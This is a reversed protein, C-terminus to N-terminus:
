MSRRQPSTEISSAPIQPPTLSALSHALGEGLMGQKMASGHNTRYMGTSICSQHGSPTLQHFHLPTKVYPTEPSVPFAPTAPASENGNKTPTFISGDAEDLNKHYCAAGAEKAEGGPVVPRPSEPHDIASSKGWGCKAYLSQTPLDNDYQGFSLKRSRGGLVCDGPSGTSELLVCCLKYM